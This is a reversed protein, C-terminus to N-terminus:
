TLKIRKETKRVSLAEEASIGTPLNTLKVLRVLVGVALMALCLRRHTKEDIQKEGDGARQIAAFGIAVALLMWVLSDITFM